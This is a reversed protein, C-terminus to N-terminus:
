KIEQSKYIKEFEAEYFKKEEDLSLNEPKTWKIKPQLETSFSMYNSRFYKKCFNYNRKIIKFM